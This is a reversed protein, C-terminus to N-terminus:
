RSVLPPTAAHNRGQMAPTNAQTGTPRGTPLSETVVIDAGRVATFGLAFSGAVVIGLGGVVFWMVGVRWWPVVAVSQIQTQM